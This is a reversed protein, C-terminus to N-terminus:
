QNELWGEFVLISWLQTSWDKQGSQHEEWMKQVQTPRLYGESGLRSKDLLSQAWSKLSNQLWRGIPIGFGMKPRDILNEPVYKMLVRRLLWKGTGNQVKLEFPITAAFEAIRHDLLPVRAELGVAMSARDLKVLLDDPLYSMLDCYSMLHFYDWTNMWDALEFAVTTRDRSDIVLDSPSKIQSVLRKYWHIFDPNELLDASEHLRNALSIGSLEFKGPLYRLPYAVADLAARPTKRILSAALRRSWFPFKSILRWVHEAFFYRQYGCFLEDGGDGSLAVTVQGRALRSVLITPILSSDGFPEDYIKPVEPVVPLVDRETLYHETHDTGLYEAVRAAYPAENFDAEHFGISFTKVREASLSQMLATVTSSDIGGSLFVGLPVDSIMRLKVSDLLLEELTAIAENATGRWPHEMGHRWAAIATWYPRSAMPIKTSAPKEDIRVTLIHGPELKFANEYISYPAPIYNHRLYLALADRNIRGQFDPHAKLAKLESGFIFGGATWGYYLPKIGIRDRVLHLSHDHRDWLAFAFMGIFKKLASDLGWASIAALMVETDSRGRFEPAKGETELQSRISLHNYVEGNFVIIYRGCVSIMPQRGMESLDLISLRQHGLAIQANEDIWVGSDDPGRHYLTNTMRECIARLSDAPRGQFDCFGSIGCM